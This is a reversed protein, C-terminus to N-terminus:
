DEQCICDATGDSLWSSALRAVLWGWAKDEEGVWGEPESSDEDRNENLSAICNATCSTSHGHLAFNGNATYIGFDTAKDNNTM